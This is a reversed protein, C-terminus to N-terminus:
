RDSFIANDAYAQRCGMPGRTQRTRAIELLEGERPDNSSALWLHAPAEQCSADGHGPKIEMVGRGVVLSADGRHLGVRMLFGEGDRAASKGVSEPSSTQVATRGLM